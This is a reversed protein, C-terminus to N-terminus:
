SPSSGQSAPAEPRSPTSYTKLPLQQYIAWKRPMRPQAPQRTAISGADQVCRHAGCLRTNIGALLTLGSTWCNSIQEHRAALQHLGDVQASQRSCSQAAELPLWQGWGAAELLGWGAAKVGGVPLVPMLGVTNWFRILEAGDVKTDSYPAGQIGGLKRGGHRIHTQKTPHMCPGGNQALGSPHKHKRPHM